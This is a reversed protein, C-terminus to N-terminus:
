PLSSDRKPFRPFFAPTRQQYRRYAEGKSRLSQEETPPVGTVRLLLYLMSAPMLLGMLGWPASLAVLGFGCWILWEGFYNPHRTWAWLGVECVQGRRAPDAKFKRLQADAVAEFIWGLAWLGFGTWELADFGANPNRCILLLPGGLLVVSLAQAQFFLAMKRPLQAGWEKRMKEYRGDEAPHHSWIRRALHTSLRLSWAGVLLAICLRRPLWGEADIAFFAIMAAFSFSWVIDVVSYNNIRRAWAFAAAFLVALGVWAVLLTWLASM